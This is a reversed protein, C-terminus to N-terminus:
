FKKNQGRCTVAVRLNGEHFTSGFRVVYCHKPDADNQSAPNPGPNADFHFPPLRLRLPDKLLMPPDLYPSFHTAPGPNADFQLTPDPDADFHFAPDPDADLHHSDAILEVWSVFNRDGSTRCSPSGCNRNNAGKEKYYM